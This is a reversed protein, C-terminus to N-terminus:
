IGGPVGCIEVYVKRVNEIAITELPELPKPHSRVYDPDAANRARLVIWRVKGRDLGRM